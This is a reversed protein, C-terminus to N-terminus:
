SDLLSGIQDRLLPIKNEVIDWIIKIDVGFYHHILIDRLGAIRKWEVAPRQDRVVQPINKTAEGIVELNRIVADRTKPDDAFEECSMGEVYTQIAESAELIDDLFVKYDRSM